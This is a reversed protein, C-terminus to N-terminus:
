WSSDNHIGRKRAISDLLSLLQALMEQAEIWRDVQDVARGEVAAQLSQFGERGSQGGALRDADVDLRAHALEIAKCTEVMGGGRVLGLEVPMEIM